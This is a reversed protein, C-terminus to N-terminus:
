RKTDRYTPCIPPAVVDVTPERCAAPKRGSQAEPRIRIQKPWVVSVTRCSAKTGIDFSQSPDLLKVIGLVDEAGGDRKRYAAARYGRFSPPRTSGAHKPLSYRGASSSVCLGSRGCRRYVRTPNSLVGRGFSSKLELNVGSRLSDRKSARIDLKAVQM